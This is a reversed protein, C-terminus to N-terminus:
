SETGDLLMGLALIVADMRFPKALHPVAQYGEPLSWGDYGTLFLYPVARQTLLDAIPYSNAGQLNVDLLAADLTRAALDLGHLVSGTPGIVEAGEDELVQRLDAAIFHEDEVVLIRKGSLRDAM